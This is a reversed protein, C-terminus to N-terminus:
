NTFSDKYDEKEIKKMIWNGNDILVEIPKGSVPHEFQQTKKDNFFSLEQTGNETKVTVRVPMKYVEYDEQTQRLNLRLTYVGTSQQDQFNETKWSYKYIPRGTGAFIWQDFFYTLDTGSVEECVKKFEETTANKYKFKQFYNKVIKFFISDGTVGRLMHLCWAGKNYVTPGFIFGEPDYVTGQFYGYDEKKMFNFYAEKGNKNEEWLAEGYSAFGENLWIDKWSAPSVADGFWQHVLEHVVVNEYKGTGTVLTYGMSSITQHEMAGGVWGFMAMGYKENIFPYEGFTASFYEIMEVTNKWDERAKETYSPYTYYDVPMEKSSDISRYTDNWHDYKGIAISVLYTTIPYVSRWLFTKDGNNEDKVEKLLGNSVVTLQSPVTASLEFASKDDPLDKCPWWSPAYDPESLTYIAPENDFNKFSFSDFGMNKPSGEYNIEIVFDKSSRLNGKTDIIIYDNKHEYSIEKGSLRLSNIKMDSVLNIYVLSLTDSLKVARMELNGFIIKNPIDFSLKLNYNQVDYLNQQAVIISDDKRQINPYKVNEYKNSFYSMYKRFVDGDWVKSIFKIGVFGWFSISM